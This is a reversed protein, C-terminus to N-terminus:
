RVGALHDAGVGVHAGFDCASIGGVLPARRLIRGRGTAALADKYNLGSWAVRITVDGPSLDDLNLEEIGARYGAEDDHIRFARFSAPIREM